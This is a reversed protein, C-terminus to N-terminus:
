WLHRLDITLLAVAAIAFLLGIKQEIILIDKRILIGVLISGVVIGTNILGSTVSLTIHHSVWGFLWYAFLAIVAVIPIYFMNGSEFWKVSLWDAFVFAAIALPVVVLRLLVDMTHM